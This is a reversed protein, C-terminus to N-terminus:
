ERLPAECMEEFTRELWEDTKESASEDFRFLAPPGEAANLEARNRVNVVSCM